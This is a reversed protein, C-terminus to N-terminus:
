PVGKHCVKKILFILCQSMGLTEVLEELGGDQLRQALRLGEKRQNALKLAKLRCNACLRTGDKWSYDPLKDKYDKITKQTLACVDQYKSHKFHGLKLTDDCPHSRKKSPM